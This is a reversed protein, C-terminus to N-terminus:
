ENEINFYKNFSFNNKTKNEIINTWFKIYKPKLMISKNLHLEEPVRINYFFQKNLKKLEAILSLFENLCEQALCNFLKNKLLYDKYGQNYSHCMISCICRSISLKLNDSFFRRRNKYIANNLNIRISSINERYESTKPYFEIYNEENTTINPKPYDDDVYSYIKFENSLLHFKPNTFIYSGEKPYDIGLVSITENLLDLFTMNTYDQLSSIDWSSKTGLCVRGNLHYINISTGDVLEYKLSESNELKNTILSVQPKFVIELKQDLITGYPLENYIEKIESLINKLNKIDYNSIKKFNIPNKSIFYYINGNDTFDYINM